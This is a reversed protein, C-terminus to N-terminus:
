TYRSKRGRNRQHMGAGFSTGARVVLFESEPHFPGQDFGGHLAALTLGARSLLGPLQHSLLYRGCIMAVISEGTPQAVHTYTADVRQSEPDLVSHELVDWRRGEHCISGVWEDQAETPEDTTDVQDGSYGDFVLLGARTLHHEVASLCAVMADESLLCYLGNYPIIIREFRRALSFCRLDAVVTSVGVGAAMELAQPDRDLGVVEHGAEVLAGGIRGSGCGLDLVAGAGDCADLYFETDGPNGTHVAAYLM